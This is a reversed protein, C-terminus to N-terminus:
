AFVDTLNIVCGELVHVPAEDMYVAGFYRGDELINARVIKSGPNVIWYERVGAQQYRRYKIFEDHRSTSPSLIEIIMDPAGNVHKRGELKSPDCVVVLDPQVVTDDSDGAANLLVDIPSLFVECPKSELFTDLRRFLRGIVRQHTTSPAAM